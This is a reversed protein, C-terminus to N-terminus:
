IAEAFTGRMRTRPVSQVRPPEQELDYKLSAGVIGTRLFAGNGYPHTQKKLRYPNARPKEYLKGGYSTLPCSEDGFDDAFLRGRPM